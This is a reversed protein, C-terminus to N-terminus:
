QIRVRKWSPSDSVSEAQFVGRYCEQRSRGHVIAARANETLAAKASEPTMSFLTCLNIVDRSGRLELIDLASSSIIINKGNTARVLQAANSILNKRSNQDRISHAYTIEFMIGRSIASNISPRKFYFPLRQSMDLQIIDVDMNQCAAQFLKESTPQVAILNYSDLIANGQVISYSYNPNDLIINLRSYLQLRANPNLSADKNIEKSYQSLNM